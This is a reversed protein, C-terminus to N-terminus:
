LMFRREDAWLRGGLLDAIFILLLIDFYVSALFLHRTFDADGEYIVALIFTLFFNVILGLIFFFRFCLWEQKQKLGQYFGIGYVVLLVFSFLFFFRFDKPFVAAKIRNFLTYFLTQQGPQSSDKQLYNGLETPKVLYMDQVGIKLLAPLEDFNALYSATVWIYTSKKILNEKLAESNLPIPSYEDYYSSGKLLGYQPNIEGGALIEGPKEANLILGRNVSHYADRQHTMDPTAAYISVTLGVLGILTALLTLRQTASLSYFLLGLATVVVGIVLFFYQQYAGAFLIIALLITVFFGYPSVKVRFYYYLFGCFYLLGIYAAAEPYFSNFYIIYSGDGLTLAIIVALFYGRKKNMGFSFSHTILYIAPLLAVLYIAGLFRLDFLRTSFFLQNLWLAATIFLQNTSFFGTDTQNFYQRIGYINQFYDNYPYTEPNQIYLNNKNLMMFYDGNDALGNIPPIFLLLIAPIAVLLVALGAPSIYHSVIKISKEIREKM